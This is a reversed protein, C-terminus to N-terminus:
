KAVPKDAPKGTSEGPPAVFVNVASLKLDGDRTADLSIHTGVALDSPKIAQDGKMFKTKKSFRFTLSQREADADAPDLDVVLEKKTLTKLTGNFTVAPGNYPGSTATASSPLRRRSYQATLGGPLLLGLIAALIAIHRMTENESSNLRIELAVQPATALTQLKNPFLM